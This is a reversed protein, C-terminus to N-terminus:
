EDDNRRDWRMKIYATIQELSMAVIDSDLYYPRTQFEDEDELGWQKVLEDHDLWEHITGLFDTMDEDRKFTFLNPSEDILIGNVFDVYVEYEPNWYGVLVNGNEDYWKHYSVASENM